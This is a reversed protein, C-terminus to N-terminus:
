IIQSKSILCPSIVWVVGEKICYHDFILRVYQVRHGKKLKLDLLSGEKGRCSHYDVYIFYLWAFYMNQQADQGQLITNM